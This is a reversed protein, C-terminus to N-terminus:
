TQLNLNIKKSSLIRTAENERTHLAKSAGLELCCYDLLLIVSSIETGINIGPGVEDSNM